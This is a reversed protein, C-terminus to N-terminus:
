PAALNPCTIRYEEGPFHEEWEDQTLNRGASTCSKEIWSSIDVDWIQISGYFCSEYQAGDENEFMGPHCGSSILQKGDQSFALDFINTTGIDILRGSIEGSFPNWLFIESQICGSGFDRELCSASALVNGDPSFILIDVYDNPGTQPNGILDGSAVDWFKVMGGGGGVLISGDPSFALSRINSSDELEGVLEGTEPDWLQTPMDNGAVVLLSADPSFSMADIWRCGSSIELSAGVEEGTTPEWFKVICDFGGSALLTGDQSFALSLVAISDGNLYRSISEEEDIDWIFIQGDSDGSAMLSLDASFSIARIREEHGELPNGIKSGTIPDAFFMSGRWSNIGLLEGDANIFVRAYITELDDFTQNLNMSLNIDAIPDWFKIEGLECSDEGWEACGASALLSGTPSFNLGIVYNNRGTNYPEVMLRGTEVEWIQIPGSENGSVIYKGDPSFDIDIINWVTSSFIKDLSEGTASDWFGIANGMCIGDIWGACTVSAFSKGDPSFAIDRIPDSWDDDSLVSTIQEGTNPNWLIISGDFSGSALIEGDPSFSVSSILETHGTLSTGLQEGTKPNWLNIIADWGASALYKGDPSFAVSSVWDTHGILPEGIQEGNSLDWLRITKDRGASALIQGDPSFALSTIQGTFFWGDEEPDLQHGLLPPGLQEMTAPNWLLISLDDSASALIKGDPSFAVATVIDTHAKISSVYPDFQMNALLEFRTQPTDVNKIAEVALLLNLNRQQTKEDESEAIEETTDKSIAPTDVAVTQTAKAEEAKPAVLYAGLAALGLIFLLMLLIIPMPLNLIRKM